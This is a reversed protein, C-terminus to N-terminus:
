SRVAFLIRWEPDAGFHKFFVLCIKISNWLELVLLLLKFMKLLSSRTYVLSLAPKISNIFEKLTIFMKSFTLFQDYRGDSFRLLLFSWKLIRSSLTIIPPLYPPPSRGPQRLRSSSFWGSIPRWVIVLNLTTIWCMSLRRWRWKCSWKRIRLHNTLVCRHWYNSQNMQGNGRRLLEKM